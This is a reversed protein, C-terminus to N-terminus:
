EYLQYVLVQYQWEAPTHVVVLTGDKDIWLSDPVCSTDIDGDDEVLHKVLKGGPSFMSIRQGKMDAVIYNGNMDVTADISGQFQGSSKGKSGFRMLLDGKPSFVKVCSDKNDSIVINGSNDLAISLSNNATSSSSTDPGTNVSFKSVLRSDQKRVSVTREESDAIILDNDHNCVISSPHRFMGHGWEAIQEGDLNIIKICYGVEGGDILALNVDQTVSIYIPQLKGHSILRVFKLKKDYLGIKCTMMEAMVIQGNPLFAIAPPFNVPLESKNLRAAISPKQVLMKSLKPTNSTKVTFNVFKSDTIDEPSENTLVSHTAKQNTTEQPHLPTRHITRSLQKSAPPNHDPRRQNQTHYGSPPKNQSTGEHSPQGTNNYQKPKSPVPPSKKVTDLKPHVGVHPNHKSYPPPGGSMLIAERQKMDVEDKTKYRNHSDMTKHSTKMTQKANQFQDLNDFSPQKSTHFSFSSEPGTVMFNGTSKSPQINRHRSAYTRNDQESTAYGEDSMSLESGRSHIHKDTSLNSLDKIKTTNDKNYPFLQKSSTTPNTINTQTTMRAKNTPIARQPKEPPKHVTEVRYSSRIQSNRNLGEVSRVVKAPQYSYKQDSIQSQPNNRQSLNQDHRQTVNINIDREPLDLQPNDMNHHSPNSQNFMSKSNTYHIMQNDDSSQTQQTIANGGGTYNMYQLTGHKIPEVNAIFKVLVKPNDPINTATDQLLIVANNETVKYNNLFHIASTNDIERQIAKMSTDYKYSKTMIDQLQQEAEHLSKTHNEQVVKLLEKECSKAQKIIEQTRDKITKIASDLFEKQTDVVTRLLQITDQTKDMNPSILKITQKLKEKLHAVGKHLDMVEHDSHCEMVCVTCASTSCFTCMYKMKEYPHRYCSGDNNSSAYSEPQRIFSVNHQKFLLVESHRSACVDCLHRECDSCYFQANNEQHISKCIDCKIDIINEGHRGHRNEEAALRHVLNEIKSVKFDNPLGVMGNRPLTTMHRCTPCPITQSLQSYSQKYLSWYNELCPLCFTHQCRLVKPEKFGEFCITCQLLDDTIDTSTAYGSGEM